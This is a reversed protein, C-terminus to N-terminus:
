VFLSGANSVIADLSKDTANKAYLQAYINQALTSDVYEVNYNSKLAAKTAPGFDGDVALGASYLKNLAEQLLYVLKNRSGYKIPLSGTPLSAYSSGASYSVPAGKTTPTTSKIDPKGAADKVDKDNKYKKYIIVGIIAIVVVIILIILTKKM